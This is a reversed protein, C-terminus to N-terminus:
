HLVHTIEQQKRAFVFLMIYKLFLFFRSRFLRICININQLVNFCMTKDETAMTRQTPLCKTDLKYRAKLHVPQSVAIM